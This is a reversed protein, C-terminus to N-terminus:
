VPINHGGHAMLEAVRMKSRQVNSTPRQIFESFSIQKDAKAIHLNELNAQRYFAVDTALNFKVIIEHQQNFVQFLPEGTEVVVLSQLKEVEAPAIPAGDDRRYAVWRAIPHAHIHEDLGAFQKLRAANIVYHWDGHETSDPEAAM